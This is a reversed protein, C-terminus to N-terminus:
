EEEQHLVEEEPTLTVDGREASKSSLGGGREKMPIINHTGHNRSARVKIVVMRVLFESWRKREREREREKKEKEIM